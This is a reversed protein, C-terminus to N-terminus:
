NFLAANILYYGKVTVVFQPEEGAYSMERVSELVSNNIQYIGLGTKTDPRITGFGILTTDEFQRKYLDSLPQSKVLNLTVTMIQYPAPSPVAGTMTGFYDTANGELALRIGDRGLYPPTVNLQPFSAWIVSAVVRNLTGQDVLPNPM